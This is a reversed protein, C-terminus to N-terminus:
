RKEDIGDSALARLYFMNKVLLLELLCHRLNSLLVNQSFLGARHLLQLFRYSSHEILHTRNIVMSLLSRWKVAQATRTTAFRGFVNVTM